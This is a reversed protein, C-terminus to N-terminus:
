TCFLAILYFENKYQVGGMSHVITKYMFIFLLGFMYAVLFVVLCRVVWYSGLHM